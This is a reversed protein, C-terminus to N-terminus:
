GFLVDAHGSCALYTQRFAFLLNVKKEGGVNVSSHM